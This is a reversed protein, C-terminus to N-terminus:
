KDTLKRSIESATRKIALIVQKQSDETLRIRPMSLSVAAIAFGTSRLIPAGFCCGGPNSEERDEAYGCERVKEFESRLAMEDSVTNPTFVPTGYSRLLRERVPLTQFAAIAKGLSSAHPPLIRGLTNGMRVLQPSEIVAVVEVHNEFLAALGVTERFELALQDLLPASERILQNLLRAPIQTPRSAVALYRGDVGKAIYGLIELTHLLRFTSAKTLGLESTAQNLTIPAPAQALWDLADLAKGVARSFYPDANAAAPSRTPAKANKQRNTRAAKSTATRM